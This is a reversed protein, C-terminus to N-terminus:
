NGLFKRAARLFDEAWRCMLDAQDEAIEQGIAYDGINRLDQADILYRHYKQDLVAGKAFERGFAGIVAAHSSFSLGRELLLAEAVYFIAYYARSAAFDAHGEDNLMRAATVSREAKALLSQVEPKM